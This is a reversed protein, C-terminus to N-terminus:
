LSVYDKGNKKSTGTKVELEKLIGVVEVENKSETEKINLM